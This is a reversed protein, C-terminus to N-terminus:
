WNDRAGRRKKKKKEEQNTHRQGCVRFFDLFLFVTFGNEAMCIGHQLLVPIKSGPAGGSQLYIVMRELCCAFQVVLVLSSHHRKDDIVPLSTHAVDKENLLTQPSAQAPQDFCTSSYTKSIQNGANIGNDDVTPVSPHDVQASSMPMSEPHDVDNNNSPTQSSTHDVQAPESPLLNESILVM